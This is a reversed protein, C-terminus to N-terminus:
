KYTGDEIIEGKDFVYIRNANTITEIRHAIVVM